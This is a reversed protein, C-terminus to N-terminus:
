TRRTRCQQRQGRYVTGTIKLAVCALSDVSMASEYCYTMTCTCLATNCEPSCATTLTCRGPSADKNSMSKALRAVRALCSSLVLSSLVSKVYTTQCPLCTEQNSDHAKSRTQLRMKSHSYSYPISGAHFRIRETASCGYEFTQQWSVLEGQFHLSM